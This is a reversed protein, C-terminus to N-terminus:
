GDIWIPGLFIETASIARSKNTLLSKILVQLFKIHIVSM